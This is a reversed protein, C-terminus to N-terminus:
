HIDTKPRKTLVIKSQMSFRRRFLIYRTSLVPPKIAWSLNTVQSSHKGHTQEESLTATPLDKPVFNHLVIKTIQSTQHPTMPSAEGLFAPKLRDM